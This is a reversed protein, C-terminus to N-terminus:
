ISRTLTSFPYDTLVSKQSNEKTFVFIRSSIIKYERDPTFEINFAYAHNWYGTTIKFQIGRSEFTYYKEWPTRGHM